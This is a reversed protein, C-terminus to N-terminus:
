TTDRSDLINLAAEKLGDGAADLWSVDPEKRFWTMQRKAYRSTLRAIDLIASERDADGTVFAATEPYGLTQMGPSTPDAGAKLLSNVEEPWGADFMQRTRQSIRERLAGREMDLGIRVLGPLDNSQEEKQSRFHESLTRGTLELIELARVIRYRDNEHIRDASDPDKEKLRLHLEATPIDKLYSEFNRRDAEDLDIDFLGQTIARLYLGAGGALVPVRGRSVIDDIAARAKDAFWRANSKETIDLIDICHHRIKKRELHSPKATGIDLGRYIQRSDVSVIEGGLRSALEMGLASKGVATPGIVAIIM